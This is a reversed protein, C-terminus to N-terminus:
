QAPAPAAPPTIPTPQAAPEKAPAAPKKPAPAKAPEKAPTGSKPPTYAPATQAGGAPAPSTAPPTGGAPGPPQLPQTNPMPLQQGPQLPQGNPVPQLPQGDPGLPLQIGPPLGELGEAGPREMGPRSARRLNPTMPPPIPGPRQIQGPPRTEHLGVYDIKASGDENIFKFALIDLNDNSIYFCWMPEAGNRVYVTAAPMIPPCTLTEKQGFRAAVERFVDFFAAGGRESIARAEPERRDPVGWRAQETFLTNARALNDQAAFTLLTTVIKKANNPLTFGRVEAASPIYEENKDDAGDPRERRKAYEDLLSGGSGEHTGAPMPRPTAAAQVPRAPVDKNVHHKTQCGGLAVLSAGLLLSRLPLVPAM